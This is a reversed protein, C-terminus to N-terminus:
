RHMVLENVPSDERFGSAMGIKTHLRGGREMLDHCEQVGRV